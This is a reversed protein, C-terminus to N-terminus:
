LGKEMQNKAEELEKQKELDKLLQTVQVELDAILKKSSSLSKEAKELEKKLTTNEQKCNEIFIFSFPLQKFNLCLVFYILYFVM